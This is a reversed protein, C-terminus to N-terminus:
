DKWPNSPQELQQPEDDMDFSVIEESIKDTDWLKGAIAETWLLVDKKNIQFAFSVRNRKSDFGFYLVVKAKTKLMEVHGGGFDAITKSEPLKDKFKELMKEIM